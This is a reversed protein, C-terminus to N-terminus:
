KAISTRLAPSAQFLRLKGLTRVPRRLPRVHKLVFGYPGEFWKGFRKARRRTVVDTLEAVAIVACTPLNDPVAIRFQRRIWDYAGVDRNSSAHIYVTGRYPTNWTRNEVKKRGTAIAWAWPQQISLVRPGPVITM